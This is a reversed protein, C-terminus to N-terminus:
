CPHLRSRPFDSLLHIKPTGLLVKICYPSSGLGLRPTPFPISYLCHDLSYCRSRLRAVPTVTFKSLLPSPDKQFLIRRRVSHPNLKVFLRTTLTVPSHRFIIIYTGHISISRRVFQLKLCPLLPPPLSYTNNRPMGTGLVYWCRCLSQPTKHFTLFTTHYVRSKSIFLTYKERCM